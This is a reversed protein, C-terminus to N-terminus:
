DTTVTARENEGMVREDEEWRNTKDYSRTPARLLQEYSVNKTMERTARRTPHQDTTVTARKNEGMIRGDEEWRNTKDYSRTPARLLQEYSVNKKDQRLEKQPDQATARVVINKTIGSTRSAKDYSTTATNLPQDSLAIIRQHSQAVSSEATNATPPATGHAGPTNHPSGELIDLLNSIMHKVDKLDNMPGGITPLVSPVMTDKTTRRPLHATNDSGLNEITDPTSGQHHVANCLVVKVQLVPGDSDSLTETRADMERTQRRTQHKDATHVLIWHKLLHGGSAKM